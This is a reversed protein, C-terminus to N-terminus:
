SATRYRAARAALRQETGGALLDSIAAELAVGVRRMFAEPEDDADPHEPIVDDVVGARLLADSGVGQAHAVEDARETTRHLVESAGEPPLPALWAHQACLIRDAQLLALATGGGGQGLLLCVTPPTLASLEALCWAIGHALGGEESRRSPAAGPTDVVTVLPLGLERSLRMGRIAEHLGEPGLTHDATQSQRDQGLVVCPMAGFRALALLLADDREGAGTGSLLTVDSAATKLLSRVGPRDPRRTRMVSDWTQRVDGAPSPASRHAPPIAPTSGADPAVASQPRVSLPASVVNLTRIAVERLEHPPVVADILGHAYLNEASQVGAPLAEGYLARQVRPGLLGILAGPEAATVHGLSGWSALVGGTTPDRLYVLYALGAARHAALASAIGIMQVFAPTGEQLRTGGSAPSAVVPLREVTAREVAAIIRRGAAVGVSGALFEFETAIVAVRHGGITGSGTLVAEDLGTNRRARVLAAAYEADAPAVPLPRDWSEWSVPDLVREILERSGIM